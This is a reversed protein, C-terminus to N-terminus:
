PKPIRSIPPQYGIGGHPRRHNYHRLWPQLAATRGRSNPYARVYAWERLLTQVLREAKGNTQPTYPQTRLHRLRHERCMAAFDRSVYPSGNDTLLQQVRLGQSEYFALARQVFGVTTVAKEDPLVEVYSVRSHDDIALHAYEWGVGRSMGRRRGHIRHGVKAIRALKKTDLHVLEGPVDREYRTVEPPPDLWKLRGLGHRRLVAGVTSRPVALQQAIAWGVLRQRRLALIRQELRAPTKRPSRRPASSRDQLGARGDQKWRRLWKAVTRRSLGLAQAAPGIGEAKAREVLDERSKPTTRANGHLKM